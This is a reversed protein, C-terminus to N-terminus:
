LFLVTKPMGVYPSSIFIITMFLVVTGPLPNLNSEFYKCKGYAGAMPGEVKPPM